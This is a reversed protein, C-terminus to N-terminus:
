CCFTRGSAMMQPSIQGSLTWLDERKTENRCPFFIFVLHSVRLTGRGHRVRVNARTLKVGEEGDGPQGERSLEARGPESGGWRQGGKAGLKEAKRVM